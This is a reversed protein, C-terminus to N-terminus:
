WRRRNKAITNAAIFGPACTIGGGPHSGSGCLYLGDIPTLYRACSRAPRVLLQDLAHEGHYVHGGTVAYREEIDLPTLVERAVISADLDVAYSSLTSVVVNGLAERRADSWGEALDYPVGHVLISVVAHGVPALESNAVSPVHVDLVPTDSFRGYKAADFAREMEPLAQGTRAFEVELDPRCRFRLPKSLALNVKATLGRMRYARIGQVVVSSVPHAGLLSFTIKPDCSSLVFKGHVPEGDDCVVGTVGDAGVMMGTVTRATQIEVGAARAAGVLADVISSGGGAVAGGALLEYRFLAANTGPSFPGAFCGLLAPLALASKLLPNEFQEDLGDAVSMPGLRLLEMMDIRGLRRLAFGGSLLAPLAALGKGLWDPPLDTFLRRAIPKIRGVFARFRAYPEIDRACSRNLEDAAEDPDHHLLLGGDARSAAFVSPPREARRLGHRTLDLREVVEPLLGTTDHLLGVSQYGPHFEEGAALGGVVPRRELVIVSRGARALVAAATLGNLGAGIVVADYLRAGQARAEQARASM